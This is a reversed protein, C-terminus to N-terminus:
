VARVQQLSGKSKRRWDARRLEEAARQYQLDWQAAKADNLLFRESEALCAYLYLDPARVIVWNQPADTNLAPTRRKYLLTYGYGSDPSPTVIVDSGVLTYFTPLGTVSSDPNRAFFEAPPRYELTRRPNTTLYFSVVELFDSPVQFSGGSLTGTASWDTDLTRLDRNFRAEAMAIFTDVQAPIDAHTNWAAIAAVLDSYTALAV